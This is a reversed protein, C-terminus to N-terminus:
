GLRQDQGLHLPGEDRSHHGHGHRCCWHASLLHSWEGISPCVPHYRGRLHGVHRRLPAEYRGTHLLWTDRDTYACACVPTLAMPAPGFTM